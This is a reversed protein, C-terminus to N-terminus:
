SVDPISRVPDAGLFSTVDGGKSGNERQGDMVIDIGGSVGLVQRIKFDVNETYKDTIGYGSKRLFNEGFFLIM